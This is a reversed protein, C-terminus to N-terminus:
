MTSLCSTRWPQLARHVRTLVCRGQAQGGPSNVSGVPPSSWRASARAPGRPARRAPPPAAPVFVQPATGARDAAAGAATGAGKGRVESRGCASRFRPESGTVRGLGGGALSAGSGRAAEAACARKRTPADARGAWAADFADASAAGSEAPEEDGM